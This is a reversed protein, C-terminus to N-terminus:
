FNKSIDGYYTTGVYELTIIDTKNATTTLTPASGGAWSITPWTVTRSGTGDQKLFIQYKQGAVPNAFTFTRNGGLTVTQITGNNWDLAITSGDTLAFVVNPPPTPKNWKTQNGTTDRTLVDGVDGSASPLVWIVNNALADPAKFGVYNVGNSSLEYWRIEGTHTSDTNTVYYLHCNEMAEIDLNTGSHALGTVVPTVDFRSNAVNDAASFSIEGLASNLFNISPEVGIPTGTVDLGFGVFVSSVDVRHGTPNDTAAFRINATPKFNIYKEVGIVTGTVEVGVFSGSAEILPLLLNVLGTANQVCAEPLAVISRRIGYKDTWDLCLGDNEIAGDITKDILPSREILVPPRVGNGSTVHLKAAPADTGIGVSGAQTVRISNAPAAPDVYLSKRRLSLLFNYLESPLTKPDIMM